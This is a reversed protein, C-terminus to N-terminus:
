TKILVQCTGPKRNSTLSVSVFKAHPQGQTDHALDRDQSYLEVCLLQPAQSNTFCITAIPLYEEPIMLEQSGPLKRANHSNLVQGEMELVVLCLLFFPGLLQIQQSSQHLSTWTLRVYTQPSWTDDPHSLKM